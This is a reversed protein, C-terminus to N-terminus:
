VLETGVQDFRLLRQPVEKKFSEFQHIYQLASQLASTLSTLAELHAHNVGLGNKIFSQVLFNFLQRHWPLKALGGPVPEYLKPVVYKKGADMVRALVDSRCIYTRVPDLAPAGMYFNIMFFQIPLMSDCGDALDTKIGDRLRREESPFYLVETEHGLFHKLDSPSSENKKQLLIRLLLSGFTENSFAKCSKRYVDVRIGNCNVLYYVNFSSIVPSTNDSMATVATSLPGSSKHTIPSIMSHGRTSTTIDTPVVEETVGSKWLSLCDIAGGFTFGKRQLGEESMRFM